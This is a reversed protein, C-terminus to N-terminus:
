KNEWLNRLVPPTRRDTKDWESFIEVTPCLSTFNVASPLQGLLPIWFLEMIMDFSWSFLSSTQKWPLSVQLVVLFGTAKVQTWRDHHWRRWLPESNAFLLPTLLQLPSAAVLSPCYSSSPAQMVDLAEPELRSFFVSKSHYRAISFNHDHYAMLIDAFCIHM